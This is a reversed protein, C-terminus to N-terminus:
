GKMLGLYLGSTAIRNKDNNKHDNPHKPKAPSYTTYVVCNVFISIFIGFFPGSFDPWTLFILGPILNPCVITITSRTIASWVEVKFIFIAIVIEALKPVIFCILTETGDWVGDFLSCYYLIIFLLDRTLSIGIPISLRKLVTQM